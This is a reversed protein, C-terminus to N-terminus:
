QVLLERVAAQPLDQLLYELARSVLWGMEGLVTLARVESVNYNEVKSLARRVQKAAGPRYVVPYWRLLWAQFHGASADYLNWLDEEGLRRNRPEEGAEPLQSDLKLWVGAYREDRRLTYYHMAQGPTRDYVLFGLFWSGDGCSSASSAFAHCRSERYDAVPEVDVIEVDVGSAALKLAEIDFFGTSGAPRMALDRSGVSEGNLQAHAVQAEAKQLDSLHFQARQCLNNLANMGCTDSGPDQDEYYCGMQKLDAVSLPLGPQDHADRPKMLSEHTPLKMVDM